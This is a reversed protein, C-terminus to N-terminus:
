ENRSFHFIACIVIAGSPRPLASLPRPLKELSVNCGCPFDCVFVWTLNLRFYVSVTASKFTLQGTSKDIRIPIFIM